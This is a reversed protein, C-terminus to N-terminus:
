PNFEIKCWSNYQARQNVQSAYLGANTENLEAVFLAAFKNKPWPEKLTGIKNFTKILSM